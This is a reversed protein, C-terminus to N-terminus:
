DMSGYYICVDVTRREQGIERQIHVAICRHCSHTPRPISIVNTGFRTPSIFFKSQEPAGAIGRYFRM